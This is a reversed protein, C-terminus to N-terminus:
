IISKKSNGIENSDIDQFEYELESVVPSRKGTRLLPITEVYEVKVGTESGVYKALERL